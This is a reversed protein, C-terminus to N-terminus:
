RLLSLYQLIFLFLTTHLIPLAFFRILQQVVYFTLNKKITLNM